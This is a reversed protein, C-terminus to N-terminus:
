LHRARARAAEVAREASRDEWEEAGDDIPLASPRDARAARVGRLVYGLVAGIAAAGGLASRVYGEEFAPVCTECGPCAECRPCVGPAKERLLSLAVEESFAAARAAPNGEHFPASDLQAGTDSRGGYLARLGEVALGTCLAAIVSTSAATVVTM